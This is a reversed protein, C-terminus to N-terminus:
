SYVVEAPASGLGRSSGPKSDMTVSQMWEETSPTVELRGSPWCGLYQLTHNLNAACDVPTAPYRNVDVLSWERSLLRTPITTTVNGGLWNLVDQLTDDGDFRRKYTEDAVTVQMWAGSGEAPESPCKRLLEAREAADNATDKKIALIAKAFDAKRKAEQYETTLRTQELASIGLYLLAPDVMPRDLMLATGYSHYNMAKLLDQAGPANALTRQYGATTTEIKRFKANDPDNQVASLARHLTDVAASHAKLRDACRLIQEEKSKDQLKPIIKVKPHHASLGVSNTRIQPQPQFAPAAASAAATKKKRKTNTQNGWKGDMEAARREAAQAARSMAATRGPRAPQQQELQMSEQMVRQLTEEETEQRQSTATPASTSSPAGLLLEAARDVNGNTAELANTASPADFGMAVLQHVKPDEAGFVSSAAESLKSKLKRFM